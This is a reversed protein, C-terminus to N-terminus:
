DNCRFHCGVFRTSKGFRYQLQKASPLGQCLDMFECFLNLGGRSVGLLRMVMVIRCNIEFVGNVRSCSDITKVDCDCTMAIKFGLGRNGTEGFQVDKKCGRCIVMQSIAAFVPIFNVFRYGHSAYTVFTDKNSRLKKQQHRLLIPEIPTCVPKWLIKKKSRFSRANHAKNSRSNKREM